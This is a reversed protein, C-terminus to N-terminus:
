ADPHRLRLAAWTLLTPTLAAAMLIAHAYDGPTPENLLNVPATTLTTPLWNHVAGITGLM